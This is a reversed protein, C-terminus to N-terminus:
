LNGAVACGELQFHTLREEKSLELNAGRNHQCEPDGPIFQTTAPFHHNSPTASGRGPPVLSDPLCALDGLLTDMVRFLQSCAPLIFNCTAVLRPHPTKMGRLPPTPPLKSRMLLASNMKWSDPFQSFLRVSMGWSGRRLSNYVSHKHEGM